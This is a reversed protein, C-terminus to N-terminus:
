EAAAYTERPLASIELILKKKVAEAFSDRSEATVVFAGTGGIILEEYLTELGGRPAAPIAWRFSRCPM